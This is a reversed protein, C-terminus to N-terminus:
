ARDSRQDDDSDSRDGSKGLVTQTVIKAAEGALERLGDSSLRREATDKVIEVGRSAAEVLADRAPQLTRQEVDSRPLVAAAVAGTALGLAAIAVPQGQLMREASTQVRTGLRSASRGLRSVGGTVTRRGEDAYDSLTSVYEGAADVVRGAADTVYEGAAGAIGGREADRESEGEDSDRRRSRGLDVSMGGVGTGRRLLMAAGAALIVLAEPNRRAAELL